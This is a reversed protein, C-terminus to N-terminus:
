EDQAAQQEDQQVAEQVDEQQEVQHEIPQEAIPESGEVALQPESPQEDANIQQAEEESSSIAEVSNDAIQDKTPVEEIDASVPSSEVQKSESVPVPAIDRVEVASKSSCGGM